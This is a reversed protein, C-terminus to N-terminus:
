VDDDYEVKKLGKPPPPPSIRRVAGLIIRVMVYLSIPVSAIITVITAIPKTGLNADIWLGLLLAGIVLASSWCGAQGAFAAYFLNRAYRSKGDPNM